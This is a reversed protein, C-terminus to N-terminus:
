FRDWFGNKDNDKSVQWPRHRSIGQGDRPRGNPGPKGRRHYHPWKGLPDGRRNGFPAIRWNNGIKIERGGKYGLQLLRGLAGLPIFISALDAAKYSLAQENVVANTGLKLRVWHTLGFSVGDGFGAVSNVVWDPIPPLDAADFFKDPASGIAASVAKSGVPQQKADHTTHRMEIHTFNLGLLELPQTHQEDTVALVHYESLLVNSLTYQLYPTLADGTQCVDIKVEPLANGVCAQQFLQPTTHDMLKTVILDSAYTSSKVRDHTQGPTTEIKRHTALDITELALWKQYGKATVNGDIGPLQMYIAM